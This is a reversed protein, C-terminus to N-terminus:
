GVEFEFKSSGFNTRQKQWFNDPKIILAVHICSPFSEQLIKLLPKITDWKSGRMDVIVTFGHKCVEESPIGALYAILRRLDDTRIRDHNSRSPFTLVPGGRRDRGGSLFAVKEKLIPLVEMARLEEYRKFGAIQSSVDGKPEKPLSGDTKFFTAIDSADKTTEEAGEGSSM